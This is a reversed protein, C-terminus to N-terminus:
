MVLLHLPMKIHGRHKRQTARESRRASEDRQYNQIRSHLTDRKAKTGSWLRSTIGNKSEKFDIGDMGSTGVNSKERM